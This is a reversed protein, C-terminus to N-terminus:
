KALPRYRDVIKGMSMVVVEDSMWEVMEMDHSIILYATGLRKRLNKLLNLIQAQVLVDLMATPEDAVILRPELGLVRAIMARQLQGGSLQHPYRHALEDSLNVMAMLEEVRDREGSKEVLRHVRLPEAISQYLTMRPDLSTEPNQFIIQMERGLRKWEEGKAKIVNRGEFLVSGATPKILGLIARALTTKGAGNDGVLGVTKGEDLSLDVGDVARVETRRPLRPHYYKKLGRVELMM